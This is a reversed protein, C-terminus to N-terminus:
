RNGKARRRGLKPSWNAWPPPRGARTRVSVDVVPLRSVCMACLRNGPPHPRSRWGTPTTRRLPAAPRQSADRLGAPRGSRPTANARKVRDFAPPPFRVRVATVRWPIKLAPGRAVSHPSSCRSWPTEARWPVAPNCITEPNQRETPAANPRNQRQVARGLLLQKGVARNPPPCIRKTQRVSAPALNM